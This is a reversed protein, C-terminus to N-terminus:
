QQAVLEDLQSAKVGGILKTVVVGSPAVVFSEPVQLVVFDVAARGTDDALVPWDGGNDAFFQEVNSVTDGFVVSVVTADGIARHREDFAVLEPHENRCPVCWTAFFNVVVWQGRLEDIDFSSGDLTTGDLAPVRHGLLPSAAENAGQDRTALVLLLGAALLAIVVSAVLAPRRPGDDTSM